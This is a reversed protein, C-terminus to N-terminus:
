SLMSTNEKSQLPAENQDAKAMATSTNKVAVALAYKM